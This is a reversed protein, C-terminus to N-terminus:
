VNHDVGDDDDDDASRMYPVCVSVMRLCKMNNTNHVRECTSFFSKSEGGTALRHHPSVSFDAYLIYEGRVNLNIYSLESAAMVEGHVARSRVVDVFMMHWVCHSVHVCAVGGSTRQRQCALKISVVGFIDICVCVCVCAHSARARAGTCLTFLMM